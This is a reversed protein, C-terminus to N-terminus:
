TQSPRRLAIFCLVALAIVAALVALAIRDSGHEIIIALVLPGAAQSGLNAFALIGAARPYSDHGFLALPLVGRAITMVGNALGMLLVFVVLTPISFGVMFVIVLGVLFTAVGFRTIFLPHFRQGFLLEFLRVLIQMPGLLMAVAVALGIDINSRQAMPIFHTLTASIAFAYAAFGAFQLWLLKGRPASGGARGSSSPPAADAPPAEPRPLALAVLPAMVLAFLGAYLLFPTRWSGGEMLLHTSLWSLSGALGAMMSILVMPKRAQDRFIRALAVYSPDSLVLSMGLGLWLWVAVYAIEDAVVTLGALGLATILAGIAIAIHGGFRQVLRTSIPSCLGAVILGITVGSVAFSLSWGLEAAIRPAALAPAYFTSGWGLIQILGLIPIARARRDFIAAPSGSTSNAESVSEKSM